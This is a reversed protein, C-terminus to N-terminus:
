SQVNKYNLKKPLRKLSQRYYCGPRIQKVGEFMTYETHDLFGHELFDMARQEEVVPNWGHIFTFQKIESGFYLNGLPCIWYYLPKIGFRDRSLLLDDKDRDYLAFAWMGDFCDLADIGWVSYAALIVETDSNTHFSKGHESELKERISKYNYLEGNYVILYRDNEFSM